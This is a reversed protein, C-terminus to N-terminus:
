WPIRTVRTPHVYRRHYELKRVVTLSLPLETDRQQLGALDAVKAPMATLLPSDQVYKRCPYWVLGGGRAGMFYRQTSDEVLSATDADALLEETPVLWRM